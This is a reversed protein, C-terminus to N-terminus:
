SVFSGQQLVVGPSADVLQGTGALNATVPAALSIVGHRQQVERIDFPFLQRIVANGRSRSMLCAETELGTVPDLPPHDLGLAHGIEHALVNTVDFPGNGTPHRVPELFRDLFLDNDCDLNITAGGIPGNPTRSIFGATTALETSGRGDKVFHIRLLPEQGALPPHFAVPTVTGWLGLAERLAINVKEVDFNTGQSGAAIDIGDAIFPIREFRNEIPLGVGGGVRIGAIEQSLQAQAIALRNAVRKAATERAPPDDLVSVASVWGPEISGNGLAANVLGILVAEHARIRDEPSAELASAGGPLLGLGAIQCLGSRDLFQLEWFAEALAQRSAPSAQRAAEAILDLTLRRIVQDPM